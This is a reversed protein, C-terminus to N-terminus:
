DEKHPNIHIMVDTVRTMRALVEKKVRSAVAHGEAVSVRPDVDLRLDVLINQGSSRARIGDVHEVGEIREAAKTIEEIIMIEPVRDMLERAAGVGIDAAMKIIFISVGAGAIPDLVPLGLRAGAIGVLAAISSYVDSRHDWANAILAPSNLRRGLGYTYRFMLEKTVVSAVAVWLAIVGPARVEGRLISTFASWLILIGMIALILSVAAASIAEAKGHGYPHEKDFPRKAVKLAILVISTAFIDSTSHAADALMAKSNGLIGAAGKALALVINGTLCIWTIKEARKNDTRRKRNPSVLSEAKVTHSTNSM